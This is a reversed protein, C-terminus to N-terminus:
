ILSRRRCPPACAIWHRRPMHGGTNAFYRMSQSAAAPWDLEVLQIWLPPVGTMGTIRHEACARLVDRALLYNLLVRACRRCIGDHAPQPRCRLEVALGLPHPRRAHERYVSQREQRGGGYQSALARRGESKGYERLHVSHRGYRHRHCPEGAGCRRPVACRALRADNEWPGAGDGRWGGARRHRSRAARSSKRWIPRVSRRPSSSASMATACLTPSRARSSCRISRYSSADRPPRASCPPSRRSANKWIFGSASAANSASGRM